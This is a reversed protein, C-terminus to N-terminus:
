VASNRYDCQVCLPIRASLQLLPYSAPRTELQTRVATIAPQRVRLLVELLKMLARPLVTIHANGWVDMGGCAKM